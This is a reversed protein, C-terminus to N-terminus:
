PTAEGVFTADLLEYDGIRVSVISNRIAEDVLKCLDDHQEETFGRESSLDELMESISLYEIDRAHEVIIRAAQEQVLDYAARVQEPTAEDSM